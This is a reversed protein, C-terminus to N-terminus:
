GALEDREQHRWATGEVEYAGPAIRSPATLEGRLYAAARELREIDDGVNGLGVNCTFCLVGRVEGTAHDHDVHPKDASPRRCIPCLSAQRLSRGEVECSGVGCRRKLHYHRSGGHLRQRSEDVRANQHCKCYAAYGSGTSRNKGFDADPKFDECDPCWRLGDPVVRAEGVTRGKAAQRRRYSTTSIRRFCEKCYSALGDSTGKNKGFSGTPKQAGCHGCFKM